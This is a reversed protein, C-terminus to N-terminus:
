SRGNANVRAQVRELLEALERPHEAWFNALAPLRAGPGVPGDVSSGLVGQRGDRFPEPYVYVCLAYPHDFDLGAEHPRLGQLARVRACSFVVRLSYEGRSASSM